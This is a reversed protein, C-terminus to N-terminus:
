SPTYTDPWSCIELGYDQCTQNAGIDQSMDEVPVNATCQNGVTINLDCLKLCLGGGNYNLCVMGPVDKCRSDRLQNAKKGMNDAARTNATSPNCALYCFGGFAPFCGYGTESLADKEPNCQAIGAGCAQGFGVFPADCFCTDKNCELGLSTCTKDGRADITPMLPDAPNPIVNGCVQPSRGEVPPLSCRTALGRVPVNRVVPVFPQAFANQPQSQTADVADVSTLAGQQYDQEVVVDWMWRIPTYGGADGLHRRPVARTLLNDVVRTVNPAAASSDSTFIAPAYALGVPVVLRTQKVKGEGINLRAVDFTDVRLDDSNSFLLEGKDNGMTEWGNALFCYTMKRKYWLEIRPHPTPRDTVGRLVQTREDIIPCNIVKQTRRQSFKGSNVASRLTDVHKIADPEYDDPATVEWIEWFGTYTGVGGLDAPSVDVIPRQYDPVKRIRDPLPDRERVPYPKKKEEMNKRFCPDTKQKDMPVGACFDKPNPDLTNKGGKMWDTGDRTERVPSSFLPYGKATFFFYMPQVVVAIPKGSAGDVQAPVVGFDYYEVQEGDIFGITPSIQTPLGRAPDTRTGGDYVSSLDLVGFADDSFEEKCGTAALAACVAVLLLPGSPGPSKRM